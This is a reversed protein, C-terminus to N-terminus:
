NSIFHFRSLPDMFKWPIKRETQREIHTSHAQRAKKEREREWISSQMNFIYMGARQTHHNEYPHISFADILIFRYSNNLIAYENKSQSANLEFIIKRTKNEWEFWTCKGAFDTRRVCEEESWRWKHCFHKWKVEDNKQEKWEDRSSTVATAKAAVAAAPEPVIHIKWFNKFHLPYSYIRKLKDETKMTKNKEM